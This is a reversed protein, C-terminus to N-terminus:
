DKIQCTDHAWIKPEDTEWKIYKKKSGRKIDHTEWILQLICNPTYPRM